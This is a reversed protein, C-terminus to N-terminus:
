GGESPESPESPAQILVKAVRRRDMDVVRLLWGEATLEAGEDPIREFAHFLYGGLTM